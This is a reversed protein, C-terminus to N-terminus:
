VAWIDKLYAEPVRQSRSEILVIQRLQGVQVQERLQFQLWAEHKHFPKFIANNWEKVKCIEIAFALINM